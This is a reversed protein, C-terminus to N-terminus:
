RHRPHVGAHHQTGGAGAARRARGPRAAPERGRPPSAPLSAAFRAPRPAPQPPRSVEAFGAWGRRPRLLGAPGLGAPLLRALPVGARVQPSCTGAPRAGGLRQRPCPTRAASCEPLQLVPAARSADQSPGPRPPCRAAGLFIASLARKIVAARSPTLHWCCRRTKLMMRQLLRAPMVQVLYLSQMATCQHNDIIMVATISLLKYLQYNDAPGLATLSLAAHSM